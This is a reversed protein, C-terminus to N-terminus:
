ENSTEQAQRGGGPGRRRRRDHAGMGAEHLEGIGLLAVVPGAVVLAADLLAGLEVLDAGVPSHGGRRWVGIALGLERGGPDADAAAALVGGAVVLVLR